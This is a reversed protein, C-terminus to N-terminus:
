SSPTAAYGPLITLEYKVCRTRSQSVTQKRNSLHSRVEKSSAAYKGAFSKFKGGIAIDETSEHQYQESTEVSLTSVMRQCEPLPAPQQVGWPYSYEDPAFANTSCNFVLKFINGASRSFGYRTATLIDIAQGVHQSGPLPPGLAVAQMPLALMLFNLM